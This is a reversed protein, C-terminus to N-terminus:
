RDPPDENGEDRFYELLREETAKGLARGVGESVADAVNWLSIVVVGTALVLVLRKPDRILHEAKELLENLSSLDLPNRRYLVWPETLFEAGVAAALPVDALAQHFWDEGLKSLDAQGASSVDEMELIKMITAVSVPIDSRLSRLRHIFTSTAEVSRSLHSRYGTRLIAAGRYSPRPPAASGDISDHVIKEGSTRQEEIGVLDLTRAAIRMKIEQPIQSLRNNDVYITTFDKMRSLETPLALLENSGINLEILSPLELAAAPLKTFRNTGIDLKELNKLNVIEAPLESLDNEGVDLELLARLQGIESPIDKLGNADARLIKLATLHGIEAPLSSIQNNGVELRMLGRLETIQPPLVSFENGDICLETLGALRSFKSPLSSLYNHGLDLIKLDKLNMFNAPLISLNNLRLDVEKLRQLQGIEIPLISLRNNSADLTELEQLNAIEPPLTELANFRVDLKVLWDLEAVEVSLAELRINALDLTTSRNERCRAIRRQAEQYAEESM